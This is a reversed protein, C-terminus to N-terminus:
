AHHMEGMKLQHNQLLAKQTPSANLVDIREEEVATEKRPAAPPGEKLEKTFLAAIEQLTEYEVKERSLKQKNTVFLCVRCCLRGFAGHYAAEDSTRKMMTWSDQLLDRLKKCSRIPNAGVHNGFCIMVM